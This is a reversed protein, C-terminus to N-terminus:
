RRDRRDCTMMLSSVLVARARANPVGASEHRHAVVRTRSYGAADLLSGVLGRPSGCISVQDRWKGAPITRSYPAVRKRVIRTTFSQKM